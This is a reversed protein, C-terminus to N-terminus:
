RVTLDINNQDFYIYLWIAVFGVSCVLPDIHRAMWSLMVNGMQVHCVVRSPYCDWTM